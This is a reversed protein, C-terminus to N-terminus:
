VCVDCYPGCHLATGLLIPEGNTPCPAWHTMETGGDEIYPYTLPMFKLGAHGDGHCRACGVVDVVRVDRACEPACVTGGCEPGCEPRTLWWTRWPCFLRHQTPSPSGGCTCEPETASQDSRSLVRPQCKCWRGAISDECAMFCRWPSEDVASIDFIHLVDLLRPHDARHCVFVYGNPVRDTVVLECM